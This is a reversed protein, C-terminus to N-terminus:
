GNDDDEDEEAAEESADDEDRHHRRFTTNEPRIKFKCYVPAETSDADPINCIFALEFLGLRLSFCLLEGQSGQKLHGVLKVQPDNTKLKGNRNREEGM